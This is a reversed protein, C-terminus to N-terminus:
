PIRRREGCGAVLSPLPCEEPDYTSFEAGARRCEPAGIGYRHQAFNTTEDVPRGVDLLHYAWTEISYRPAFIAIHEAATRRGLGADTLGKDFDAYPDPQRPADQDIMVLLALTESQNKTCYKRHARVNPVYNRQVSTKGSGAGEAIRIARNGYGKRTAYQRLFSNHAQDEYLLVIKVQRRRM